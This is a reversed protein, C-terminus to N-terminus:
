PTVMYPVALGLHVLEANVDMGNALIRALYRGYKEQKDKVTQIVVPGTGLLLALKERADNARKREAPDKAHLEPTNIGLLRFRDVRYVGFGLDVRLDVTDGDVVNLPTAQYEYM